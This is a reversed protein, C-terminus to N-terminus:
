YGKFPSDEPNQQIQILNNSWMVKLFMLPQQFSKDKLFDSSFSEWNQNGHKLWSM